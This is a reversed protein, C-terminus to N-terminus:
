NKLLVMLCLMQEEIQFSASMNFIKKGNTMKLYNKVWVLKQSGQGPFLIAKM